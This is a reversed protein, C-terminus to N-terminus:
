FYHKFSLFRGSLVLFIKPEYDCSSELITDFLSTACPGKIIFLKRLSIVNVGIWPMSFYAFQSDANKQRLMESHAAINNRICVRYGNVSFARIRNQPSFLNAFVVFDQPM